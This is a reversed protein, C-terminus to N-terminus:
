GAGATFGAPLSVSITSAPGSIPVSEAWTGEDGTSSNDVALHLDSVPYGAPVSLAYVYVASRGPGLMTPNVTPARFIPGVGANFLEVCLDGDDDQGFTTASPSSPSSPCELGTPGPSTVGVVSPNAAVMLPLGNALAAVGEGDSPEPGKGTNTLQLEVGAFPGAGQLSPPGPIAGAAQASAEVQETFSTM